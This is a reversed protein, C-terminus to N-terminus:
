SVSKFEQCLMELQQASAAASCSHGDAHNHGCGSRLVSIVGTASIQSGELSAEFNTISEGASILLLYDDHDGKIFMRKGSHRCTHICLGHVTVLKGNYKEANEFLEDVSIEAVPEAPKHHDCCKKPTETNSAVPASGPTNCSVLFTILISVIILSYKQM